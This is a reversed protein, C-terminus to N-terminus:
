CRCRGRARCRTTAATTSCAPAITTRSVLFVTQMDGLMISSQARLQEIAAPNRKQPMISSSGTLEGGGAHVMPLPEAYQAHLDQAFQGIQVAAIALASAVDLASDVPALHNADYANEVPRRLGAARGAARPRASLELHRARRRRAPQSEGARVGPALARRAHWHPPLRSCTTRSPRRSRRCATRTPPFSPRPHATRGARAAKARPSSCRRMGERLLGDRLNM